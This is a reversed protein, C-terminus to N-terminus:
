GLFSWKKRPPAKVVDDKIAMDDVPPPPPLTNYRVIMGFVSMPPKFIATETEDICNRVIPKTRDPEFKRKIENESATTRWRLHTLWRQMDKGDSTKFFFSKSGFQKNAFTLKFVHNHPPLPPPLTLVGIELVDAKKIQLFVSPKSTPNTGGFIYLNHGRCVANIPLFSGGPVNGLAFTYSLPGSFEYVGNRSVQALTPMARRLALEAAKKESETLKKKEPKAAAINAANEASALPRPREASALPTLTEHAVKEAAAKKRAAAAAKADRKLKNEKTKSIRIPM